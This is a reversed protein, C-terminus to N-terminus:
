QSIRKKVKPVLYVDAHQVGDTDTVVIGHHIEINQGHTRAENRAGSLREFPGKWAAKVRVWFGQNHEVV